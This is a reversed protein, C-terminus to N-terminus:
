LITMTYSDYNKQIDLILRELVREKSNNSTYQNLNFETPDISKFGSTLFFKSMAYSYLNDLYIIFKSEQKPDYNKLYKNKANTCRNSIYFNVGKTGLELFIYMDPNTIIALDNKTM